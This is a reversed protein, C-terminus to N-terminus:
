VGPFLQCLKRSVVERDVIFYLSTFRADIYQIKPDMALCLIQLNASITTFTSYFSWRDGTAARTGCRSTTNSAECYLISRDNQYEYYIMQELLKAKVTSLLMVVLSSASYERPSTLIKEM